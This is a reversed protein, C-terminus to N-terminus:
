RCKCNPPRDSLMGKAVSLFGAHYISCYAFAKGDCGGHCGAQEGKALAYQPPVTYGCKRPSIFTYQCQSGLHSCFSRCASEGSESISRLFQSTRSRIQSEPACEYRVAQIKATAACPDGHEYQPDVVSVEPGRKCLFMPKIRVDDGIGHGGINKQGLFGTAYLGAIGIMCFLTFGGYRLLNEQNKTLKIPPKRKKSSRGM